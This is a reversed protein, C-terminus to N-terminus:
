RLPAAVMQSSECKTPLVRNGRAKRERGALSVVFSTSAAGVPLRVEKMPTGGGGDRDSQRGLRDEGEPDASSHQDRQRRQRVCPPSLVGRKMGEEFSKALAAADHGSDLQGEIDAALGVDDANWSYLIRPSAWSAPREGGEPELLFLQAAGQVTDYSFRPRKLSLGQKALKKLVQVPSDGANPIRSERKSNRISITVLYIAVGIAMSAIWLWILDELGYQGLLDTGLLSWVEVIAISALVALVWFEAEKLPFPFAGSDWEPRLLRIRWCISATALLLFGPLLLLSPVGLATLIETEGSVGVKATESAVLDFEGGGLAIPLRFVLQQEGPRVRSAAKAEITLVAVQGPAVRVNRPLKEFSIFSPGQAEVREVELPQAAKDHVLLYVPESQGSHLTALSAKVDLSALKEPELAPPPALEVSAGEIQKAGGLRFRALLPIAPPLRGLRWPAVSLHFARTEGAALTVARSPTITAEPSSGATGPVDIRLGAISTEATNTALVTAAAYRSTSLEIKAPVSTLEISASAAVPPFVWWVAIAGFVTILGRRLVVRNGGRLMM